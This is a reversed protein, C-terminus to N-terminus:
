SDNIYKHGQQLCCLCYKLLFSYYPPKYEEKYYVNCTYINLIYRHHLFQGKTKRVPGIILCRDANGRRNYMKHIINYVPIVNHATYYQILSDFNEKEGKSDASCLNTRTYIRTYTSPLRITRTSKGSRQLYRYVRSAHSKSFVTFRWM